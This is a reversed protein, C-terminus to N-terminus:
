SEIEKETGESPIHPCYADRQPVDFSHSRCRPLARTTRLQGWLDTLFWQASLTQHYFGPLPVCLASVFWAGCLTKLLLYKISLAGPQIVPLFAGYLSFGVIM